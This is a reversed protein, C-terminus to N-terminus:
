ERGEGFIRSLHRVAAWAVTSTAACAASHSTATVARATIRKAVRELLKLLFALAMTTIQGAVPTITTATTSTTATPTATATTQPTKSNVERRPKAKWFSSPHQDVVRFPQQELSPHHALPKLRWWGRRKVGSFLPPAAATFISIVVVATAFPAAPVAVQHSIQHESVM